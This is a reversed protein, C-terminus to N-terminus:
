YDNYNLPSASFKNVTAAVPKLSACNAIGVLTRQKKFM